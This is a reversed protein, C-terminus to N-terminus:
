SMLENNGSPVDIRLNGRHKSALEKILLATEFNPAVIPGLISLGFGIIKTVLYDSLHTAKKM